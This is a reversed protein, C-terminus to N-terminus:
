CASFDSFTVSELAPGFDSECCVASVVLIVVDCSMTHRKPPPEARKLLVAEEEPWPEEEEEDTVANELRCIRAGSPLLWAPLGRLFM